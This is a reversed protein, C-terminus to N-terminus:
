GPVIEITTESDLTRSFWIVLDEGEQQCRFESATLDAGNCRVRSPPAAFYLRLVPNV